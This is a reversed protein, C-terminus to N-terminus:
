AMELNAFPNVCGAHAGTFHVPDDPTGRWPFDTVLHFDALLWREFRELRRADDQPLLRRAAPALRLRELLTAADALKGTPFNWPHRAKFSLVFARLHDDTMEFRGLYRELVVRVLDEDSFSRVGAYAVGLSAVGGGLLWLAARRSMGIM